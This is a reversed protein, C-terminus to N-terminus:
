LSGTGLDHWSVEITIKYLSRTSLDQWSIKMSVSIKDLSRKNLPQASIKSLSIKPSRTCLGQVSVERLSRSDQASVKCLSRTCLDQWSTLDRGSIKDLSRKYLSRTCLDQWSVRDQYRKAMNGAVSDLTEQRSIKEYGGLPFDDM